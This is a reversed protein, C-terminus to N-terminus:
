QDQDLAIESLRSLVARYTAIDGPHELLLNTTHNQAHAIPRHEAYAMLRFPGGLLGCGPQSSELALRPLQDNM